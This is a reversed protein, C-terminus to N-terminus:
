SKNVETLFPVENSSSILFKTIKKKKFKCFKPATPDTGWYILNNQGLRCEMTVATPSCQQIVTTCM